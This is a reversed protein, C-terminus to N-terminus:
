GNKDGSVKEKVDGAKDAAGEAKDKASDEVDEWHVYLRFALIFISGTLLWRVLVNIYGPFLYSILSITSMVWAFMAANLLPRAFRERTLFKDIWYSTDKM